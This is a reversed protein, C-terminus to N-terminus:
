DAVSQLYSRIEGWDILTYKKHLRYQFGEWFGQDLMKPAQLMASGLPYAIPLYGHFSTLCPAETQLLILARQLKEVAPGGGWIKLDIRSKPKLQGKYIELPEIWIYQQRRGVKLVRALTVVRSDAVFRRFGYVGNKEFQRKFDVYEELMLSEELEYEASLPSYILHTVIELTQNYDDIAVKFHETSGTGQAELVHQKHELLEKLLIPNDNSSM